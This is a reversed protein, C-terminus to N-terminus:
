GLNVNLIPPKKKKAMYFKMQFIKIIYNKTQLKWGSQQNKQKLKVSNFFKFM